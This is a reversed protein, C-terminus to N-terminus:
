GVSFGPLKVAKGTRVFVNHLDNTFFRPEIKVPVEFGHASLLEKVSFESRKSRVVVGHVAQIGIPGPILVEAQADTPCNEQLAGRTFIGSAATVVPAFLTRFAEAGENLQAEGSAANTAAFKTGTNAIQIPDICLIIFERNPYRQEFRSM